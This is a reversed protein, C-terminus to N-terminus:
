RIENAKFYRLLNKREKELAVRLFPRPSMRPTGLELSKGYRVNTGVVCRLRNKPSSPEGIGDGERSASVPSDPNKRGLGSGSWNFTISARLRGTDVAPPHGPASARHTINGRRYVRGTGPRMSKKIVGEMHAGATKLADLYNSRARGMFAEGRWVVNPM